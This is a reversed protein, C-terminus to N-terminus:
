GNNREEQRGEGIELAKALLRCLLPTSLNVAAVPRVAAHEQRIKQRADHFRTPPLFYFEIEADGEFYSVRELTARETLVKTPGEAHEEHPDAMASFDLWISEVHRRLKEFFGDTTARAVLADFHPPSYRISLGTRPHDTLLDNQLFGLVFDGDRARKVFVDDASYSLSPPALQKLQIEIQYGSLGEGSVEVIKVGPTAVEQGPGRPILGQRRKKHGTSMDGSKEVLLYSGICSTDM